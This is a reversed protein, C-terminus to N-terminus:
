SSGSEANASLRRAAPACRTAERRSSRRPASPAPQLQAPSCGFCAACTPSCSSRRPCPHEQCAAGDANFPNATCNSSIPERVDAQSTPALPINSEDLVFTPNSANVFHGVFGRTVGNFDERWSVFPTNASFTIDPRTGTAIPAGHNVIDFHAASGTGVLRSVFIRKVGGVDEDWAVWPVTPKGATM